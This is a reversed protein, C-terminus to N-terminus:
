VAVLDAKLKEHLRLLSEPVTHRPRETIAAIPKVDILDIFTAENIPVTEKVRPLRLRFQRESSDIPPEEAGAPILILEFPVHAPDIPLSEVSRHKPSASKGRSPSMLGDALVSLKSKSRKPSTEDISLPRFQPQVFHATLSPPRPLSTEPQVPSSGGTRVSISESEILQAEVVFETEAVPLNLKPVDVAMLGTECTSDYPAQVKYKIVNTPPDKAPDFVEFLAGNFVRKVNSFSHLPSYASSIAKRMRSIYEWSDIESDAIVHFICKAPKIGRHAPMEEPVFKSSPVGSATSFSIAIFQGLRGLDRHACDFKFSLRCRVSRFPQVNASGSSRM